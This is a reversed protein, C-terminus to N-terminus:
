AKNLFVIDIQWSLSPVFFRLPCGPSNFYLNDAGCGIFGGPEGLGEQDQLQQRAQRAAAQAAVARATAEAATPACVVGLAINHDWAPCQEDMNGECTLQMDIHMDSFHTLLAVPPMEITATAGEFQRCLVGKRRLKEYMQGLGTKTFSENKTHLVHRKKECRDFIPVIYAAKTLNAALEAQPFVTEATLKGATQKDRAQRSL